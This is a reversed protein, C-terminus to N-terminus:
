RVYLYLSQLSGDAYAMNEGARLIFHRGQMGCSSGATGGACAKALMGSCGMDVDWVQMRGATGGACAKALLGCALTNMATVRDLEKLTEFNKSGGSSLQILEYSISKRVQALFPPTPQAM